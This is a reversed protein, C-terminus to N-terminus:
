ALPAQVSFNFLTTHWDGSPIVVRGQITWEGALDLDGSVATYKMKGDTGTNVLTATKVLVVGNPKHFKVVKTTANSIDVVAVVQDTIPVEFITGIDGVFIM